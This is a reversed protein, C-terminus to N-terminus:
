LIYAPKIIRDKYSLHLLDLIYGKIYEQSFKLFNQQKKLVKKILEILGKKHPVWVGMM